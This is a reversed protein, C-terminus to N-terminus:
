RKSYYIRGSKISEYTLWVLYILIIPIATINATVWALSLISTLYFGWLVKQTVELSPNRKREEKTYSCLIYCSLTVTSILSMVFLIIILTELM